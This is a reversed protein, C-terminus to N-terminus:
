SKWVLLSDLRNGEAKSIAQFEPSRNGLESALVQTLFPQGHTAKLVAGLAGDAYSLSFTTTPKTLLQRVDDTGLFSVKLRRASLFRDTWAPGLQEFTHSGIFMLAFRQRHQLWHRLADLFRTGWGETIIEQLREFEDLCLLVRTQAPLRVEYADLWDEFASFANEGLADLALPVAGRARRVEEGEHLIGLRSNLANALCRSLHRILAARSEVTAPAQCDVIVSLFGPGLLSPLQYLISTKGMRRQGYLLLTPAQARLINREIELAVDRRGTFLGSELSNVPNGFIFPNEIERVEELVARVGERHRTFLSAWGALVKVLENAGLGAQDLLESQLASLARLASETIQLRRSPDQVTLSQGAQQVIRDLSVSLDLLVSDLGTRLATPQNCDALDELRSFTLQESIAVALVQGERQMQLTDTIAEVQRGRAGAPNVLSLFYRGLKGMFGSKYAAARPEAPPPSVEALAGRGLLGKVVKALRDLSTPEDSFGDIWHVSSLFYELAGTPQVDVIRYPVVPLGSSVAREIERVVHASNNTNDSAVLVIVRSSRIADIIAASYNIGPLIDRPSLWCRVQQSELKMCVADAVARDATTYSIFVEHTM